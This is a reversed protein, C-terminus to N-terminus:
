LILALVIGHFLECELLLLKPQSYTMSALCICPKCANQGCGFRYFFTFCSICLLYRSQFYICFNKNWKSTVLCCKALSSSSLKLNEHCMYSSSCVIPHMWYYMLSLVNSTHIQGCNFGGFSLRVRGTELIYFM